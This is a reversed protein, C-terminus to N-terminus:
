INTIKTRLAILKEAMVKVEEPKLSVAYADDGELGQVSGLGMYTEKVSNLEAILDTIEESKDKIKNLGGVLSELIIMQESLKAGVDMKNNKIADYAGFYMGEIWAGTFIVLGLEQENNADIYDDTMQKIVIMIEFISDKNGINSEFRKMLDKSGTVSGLGVQDSMKNVTNMIEAAENTKGSVVAYALDATYVGYNVRRKFSSSYKDANEPSNCVSMDFVLGAKSFIEAVQIPSPMIVSSTIDEDIDEEVDEETNDDTTETEAKKEDGGCSQLTFTAPTLLMLYLLINKGQMDKKNYVAFKILNLSGFAIRKSFFTLIQNKKLWFLWNKNKEASLLRNTPSIIDVM